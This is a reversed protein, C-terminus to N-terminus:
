EQVAATMTEHMVDLQQQVKLFERSVATDSEDLFAKTQLNLFTNQAKVTFVDKEVCM